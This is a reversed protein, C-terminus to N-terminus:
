ENIVRVIRLTAIISVVVVISQGFDSVSYSIRLGTRCIGTGAELPCCSSGVM